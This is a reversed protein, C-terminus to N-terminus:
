DPTFGQLNKEQENYEWLEKDYRADEMADDEDM